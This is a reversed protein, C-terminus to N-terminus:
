RGGRSPNREIAGSLHRFTTSASDILEKATMTARDAMAVFHDKAYSAAICAGGARGLQESDYQAFANRDPFVVLLICVAQLYGQLTAYKM